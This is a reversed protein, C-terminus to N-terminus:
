RDSLGHLLSGNSHVVPDHDDRVPSPTGILRCTDSPMCRMRRAPKSSLLRARHSQRWALISLGVRGTTASTPPPAICIFL